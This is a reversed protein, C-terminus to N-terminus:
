RGELSRMYAILDDIERTGLQMNPMPPHPDTLWIRLSAPNQAAKAALGPFPPAADTAPAHPGIQHCDACWARALQLGQRADGAAAAPVPHIMALLIAGALARIV